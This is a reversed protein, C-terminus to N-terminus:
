LLDLINDSTPEPSDKPATPAPPVSMEARAPKQPSARKVRQERALRLETKRDAVQAADQYSILGRDLLNILSQTFTQMGETAGRQLYQYIEGTQGDLIHSSITPTNVLVEVAPVRGKGDQRNLLKQSVVGRLCTALLMRVQKQVHGDFSDVIRDVAQVTNPTHLTSLVLHGTEAATVATMITETDRMEGLMIVNPDQRLAQKLAEVFSTTDTGVERQTIYATKDNHHYEIPDEITVVHTRRNQNIWDVVAALTTSKGSGAPGTILVLGDQMSALQSLIPPLGLDQFSPVASNVMRMAATFHGRELFANMRFRVGFSVYAHDVERMRSLPERKFPPLASLVLHRCQEATLPTDGIPILQGELRVTPPSNPKIHLDSARNKIVTRLLDDLTFNMGEPPTLDASLDVMVEAASPVHPKHEVIQSPINQLSNEIKSLRKELEELRETLQSNSILSPQSYEEPFLDM